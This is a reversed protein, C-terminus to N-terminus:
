FNQPLWIEESWHARRGAAMIDDLANTESLLLKRSLERNEREVLSVEHYLAM